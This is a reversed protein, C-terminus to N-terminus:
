NRIKPIYLTIIIRNSFLFKAIDLRVSYIYLKHDHERRGGEDKVLGMGEVAGAM